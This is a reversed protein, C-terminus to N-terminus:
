PMIQLFIPGCDGSDFTNMAIGVRPKTSAADDVIVTGNDNSIVDEGKTIAGGSVVGCPGWTQAWFYYSAASTSATVVILPVGAIMGTNALLVVKYHPSVTLTFAHTGATYARTTEDYLTLALAAGAAAAANSKVIYSDGIGSAGVGVTLIGDKFQDAVKVSASSHNTLTISKTGAVTSTPLVIDEDYADIAQAQILYGSALAVAGNLTYYFVRNGLQLRSGIACKATTSEEYIDQGVVTPGRRANNISLRQDAM